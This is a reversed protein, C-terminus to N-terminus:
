ISDGDLFNFGTGIGFSLFIRARVMAMLRSIQAKLKDVHDHWKHDLVAKHLPIPIERATKLAFNMTINFDRVMYTEPNITQILNDMGFFKQGILGIIFGGFISGLTGLYTIGGSTGRSVKMKSLILRPSSKSFYGIETGWTDATASAIAGLYLILSYPSGWFIYEIACITPSDRICM